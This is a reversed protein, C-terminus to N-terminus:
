AIGADVVLQEETVVRHHQEAIGLLNALLDDLGHPVLRRADLAAARVQGVAAFAAGDQRAISIRRPQRFTFEASSLRLRLRASLSNSTNSSHNPTSERPDITMTQRSRSAADLILIFVKPIGLRSSISM